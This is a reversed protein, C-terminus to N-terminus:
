QALTSHVLDSYMSAIERMVTVLVAVLVSSVGQRFAEPRPDFDLQVLRGSGFARHCADSHGRSDVTSALV